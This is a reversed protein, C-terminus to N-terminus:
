NQYSSFWAVKEDFRAYRNKIGIRQYPRTLHRHASVQPIYLTPRIQRPIELQAKAHAKKGCRVCEFGQNRGKSKMKKNCNVCLPNALIIKKELHLVEFFEVNLTKGHTKSSKRIGGGVKVKDGKMLFLANKTIGTPRYVACDIEIGDKRISFFVHRGREM